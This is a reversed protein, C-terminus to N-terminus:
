VGNRVLDEVAGQPYSPWWDARSPRLGSSRACASDAVGSSDGLGAPRPRGGRCAKKRFICPTGRAGDTTLERQGPFLLYYRAGAGKSIWQARRWTSVQLLSHWGHRRRFMDSGVPAIRGSGSTRTRECAEAISGSNGNTRESPPVVQVEGRRGAFGLAAPVAIKQAPPWLRDDPDGTPIAVTSRPTVPVSAPAVFRRLLFFSRRTRAHAVASFSHENFDGSKRHRRCRASM